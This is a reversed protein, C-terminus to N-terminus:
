GAIEAALFRKMRVGLDGDGQARLAYRGAAVALFDGEAEHPEFAIVRRVEVAAFRNVSDGLFARAVKVARESGLLAALRTKVLGPRPWKAFLGLVRHHVSM